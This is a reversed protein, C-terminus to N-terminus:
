SSAQAGVSPIVSGKVTDKIHYCQEKSTDGAPLAKEHQRLVVSLLEIGWGAFVLHSSLLM